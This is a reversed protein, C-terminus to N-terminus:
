AASLCAMVVFYGVVVFIYGAVLYGVVAAVGRLLNLKALGSSATECRRTALFYTSFVLAIFGTVALVVITLPSPGFVSSTM